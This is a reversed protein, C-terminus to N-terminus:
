RWEVSLSVLAWFLLTFTESATHLTRDGTDPDGAPFPCTRAEAGKPGRGLGWSLFVSALVVWSSPPPPALAFWLCSKESNVTHHPLPPKPQGLVQVAISFSLAISM